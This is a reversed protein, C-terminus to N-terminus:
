KGELKNKFYTSILHELVVHVDEVPGYDRSDVVISIKAMNKVKGGGFGTFAVTTAGCDNAYKVAELINPSNGSATIVIVVDGKNVLNSLQERFVADYGCDNSLAMVLPTNDNLSIVRFRKKNLVITGKGLDCAFHSATAASGGNGMIFVQKDELYAKYLVDSVKKVDEPNIKDLVKKLDKIYNKAYDKIEMSEGKTKM